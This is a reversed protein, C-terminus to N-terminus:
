SLQPNRFSKRIPFTPIIEADLRIVSLSTTLIFLREHTFIIREDLPRSLVNVGITGNGSLLGDEWTRAPQSSVFGREPVPLPVASGRCGQSLAFIVFLGISSIVWNQHRSHTNM